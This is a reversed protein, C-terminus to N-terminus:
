MFFYYGLVGLVTTLMAFIKAMVNPKGKIVSVIVGVAAPVLCLWAAVIQLTYNSPLSTADIVTVLVGLMVALAFFIKHVADNGKPVFMFVSTILFSFIIIVELLFMATFAM